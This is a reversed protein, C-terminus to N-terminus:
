GRCRGSMPLEASVIALDRRAGHVRRRRIHRRPDRVADGRDGMGPPNRVEPTIHSRIRGAAIDTVSRPIRNTGTRRQCLPANARESGSRPWAFHM